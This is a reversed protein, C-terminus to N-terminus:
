GIRYWTTGAATYQYTAFSGFAGVAAFATLGGSITAAGGSLTLAAVAQTSSITLRQGDLPVAPFNITGTLLAGAPTLILTGVNNALSITFGDAPTQKSYSGDVYAGLPTTRGDGAVSFKTARTPSGNPTLAVNFIVGLNTGAVWNESSSMQVFGPASYTAGNYGAAIIQVINQGTTIITPAAATGEARRGVLQVGAGFAQWYSAASFTNAATFVSLAGAAAAVPGASTNNNVTLSADPAVTGVGLFKGTNNWQLSADQALGGTASGFVIQAATLTTIAALDSATLLRFTPTAAAGSSPGGYFNNAAQPGSPVLGGEAQQLALVFFDVTCVIVQDGAVFRNRLLDAILDTIASM